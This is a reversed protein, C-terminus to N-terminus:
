RKKGRAGVRATIVFVNYFCDAGPLRFFARGVYWNDQWCHRVPLRCSTLSLNPYRHNFYAVSALLSPLLISVLQITNLDQWIRYYRYGVVISEISSFRM